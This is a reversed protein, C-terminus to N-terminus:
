RAEFINAVVVGGHVNDIPSLIRRYQKGEFRDIREWHKKLTPSVFIKVQVKAGSQRWKFSDFGDKQQLVGRVFGDEWTGPIDALVAYNAQGPALSGYVALRDTPFDILAEFVVELVPRTVSCVQQDREAKKLDPGYPTKEGHAINSRVVYLMQALKKLLATQTESSLTDKWRDMAHVLQRHEGTAENALAPPIPQDPRYKSSKRLTDHNLIQPNFTVFQFVQVSKSLWERRPQLIGITLLDSIAKSDSADLTNTARRHATWLTNLARFLSDCRSVEDLTQSADISNNIHALAQELEGRTDEKQWWERSIPM